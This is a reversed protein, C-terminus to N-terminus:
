SPAINAQLTQFYANTIIIVNKKEKPYQLIVKPSVIIQHPEYLQHLLCTEIHVESNTRINTGFPVEPLSLSSNQLQM